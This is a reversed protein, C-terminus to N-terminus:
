FLTILCTTDQNINDDCARLLYSLDGVKVQGYYMKSGLPLSFLPPTLAGQPKEQKTKPPWKGWVEPRREALCISTADKAVCALAQIKLSPLINQVRHPPPCYRRLRIGRSSKRDKKNTVQGLGTKTRGFLCEDHRESCLCPSEDQIVRVYQAGRPSPSCRRPRIGRPSKKKKKQPWKGWVDRPWVLVRQLSEMLMLM